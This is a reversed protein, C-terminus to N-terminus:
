VTIYELQFGAQKYAKYRKRALAKQEEQPPVFDIIHGIGNSKDFLTQSLIIVVNRNRLQLNARYVADWMISVPTGMDPGEGYLNHPVFKNAPFQWLFEDLQEAQVQSECIVSVKKRASVFDSILKSTFTIEKSVASRHADHQAEDTTLAYFSVLTSM